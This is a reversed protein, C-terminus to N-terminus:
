DQYLAAAAALATVDHLEVVRVGAREAVSHAASAAEAASTETTNRLGTESTVAVVTGYEPPDTTTRGDSGSGEREDAGGMLPGAPPSEDQAGFYRLFTRSLCCSASSRSLAAHGACM